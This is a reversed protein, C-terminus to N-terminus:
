NSKIPTTKTHIEIINNIDYYMTISLKDIAVHQWVYKINERDLYDTFKDENAVLVTVSDIESKAEFVEDIIVKKDKTILTVQTNHLSNITNLTNM